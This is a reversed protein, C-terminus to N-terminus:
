DDLNEVSVRVPEKYDKNLEPVFANIAHKCNPHFLGEDTAEAVTPYGKTEGTLSLIRGEWVACEKHSTNHTTVLVLDFGLEALRNGTGRNRAETGKTSILMNTYAELSWKRGGKDVLATFGNEKLDNVINKRIERRVKGTITGELLRATISDRVAKGLIFKSDKMVGHMSLGFAEQTESVLTKIADQHIRNFSSPAEIDAGQYKLERVADLAGGKYFREIEDEVFGDVDVKLDVLIERINALTQRRTRVRFDKITVIEKFVQKYAKKYTSILKATEKDNLRVPSTHRKHM